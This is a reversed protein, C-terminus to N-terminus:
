IAFEKVAQAISDTNWGVMTTAVTQIHASSPVAGWPQIGIVPKNYERAVEIEYKVWKRYDVYMGSVVLLANAMHIRHALAEQIGLFDHAVLPADRPVSHNRWNLLSANSLLNVLRHYDVDHCWAHSIFLDYTKVPPM